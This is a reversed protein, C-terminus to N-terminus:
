AHQYGDSSEPSLLLRRNYCHLIDERPYIAFDYRALNSILGKSSYPRGFRDHVEITIFAVRQMWFPDGSFLDEEGGEIDIKMVIRECLQINNIVDILSTPPGFEINIASVNAKGPGDKEFMFIGSASLGGPLKKAQYLVSTESNTAIGYIAEFIETRKESWLSFNKHLVLYNQKEAEIAIVRKISSFFKVISLSSLGINAGIDILITPSYQCLASTLECEPIYIADKFENTRAFDSFSPRLYVSEGCDLEKLMCTDANLHKNQFEVSSKNNKFYKLRDKVAKLFRKM